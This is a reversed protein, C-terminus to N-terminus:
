VVFILVNIITLLISIAIVIKGTKNAVEIDLGKGADWFLHRIGNCIHYYLSFIFGVLIIYRLAHLVKLGFCDCPISESESAFYVNYVIFWCLMLLGVFSAVGTIRHMISTISTIQPKYIQIHPSLPRLDNKDKPM